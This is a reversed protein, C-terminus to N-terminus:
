RCRDDYIVRTSCIMDHLARKQETWGAMFFGILLTFSSVLMALWRAFALGYGLRGGDRKIVRLGLARKGVTAQWPGGHLLVYYAVNIAIGVLNLIPALQEIDGDITESTSQVALMSGLVGGMLAAIAILILTDICYAAFRIWFGAFRHNQPLGASVPRHQATTREVSRAPRFADDRPPRAERGFLREDVSAKREDTPEVAPSSPRAAEIPPGRYLDKLGDIEVMPRWSEGAQDYVLTDYGIRGENLLMEVDHRGYPGYSQGDVHLWWMDQPTEPPQEPVTNSM